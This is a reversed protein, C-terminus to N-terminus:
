ADDLEPFNRLLSALQASLLRAEVAEPRMRKGGQRTEVLDGTKLETRLADLLDMTQMVEEVYEHDAPSMFDEDYAELVRRKFREARTETNKPM